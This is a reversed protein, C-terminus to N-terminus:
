QGGERVLMLKGNSWGHEVLLGFAKGQSCQGKVMTSALLDELVSSGNAEVSGNGHRTLTGLTRGAGGAADVVALRLVDAM